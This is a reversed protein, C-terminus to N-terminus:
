KAAPKMLRPLIERQLLLETARQAGEYRLHSNSRFFRRETPYPAASLDAFQYGRRRLEGVMSEQFWAELQGEQRNLYAPGVPMRVFLVQCPLDQLADLLKLFALSEPDERPLWEWHMAAPGSIPSEFEQAEAGEGVGERDENWREPPNRDGNRNLLARVEAPAGALSRYTFEVLGALGRWPGSRGVRETREPNSEAPAGAQVRRTLYREEIALVLLERPPRARTIQEIVDLLLTPRLGALGLKHVIPASFKSGLRQELQREALDAAFGDRVRSSGVVLVAEQGAVAGYGLLAESRELGSTVAYLNWGGPDLAYLSALATLLFGGLLAALRRGLGAEWRFAQLDGAHPALSHMTRRAWPM